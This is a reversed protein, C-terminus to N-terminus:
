ENNKSILLEILRNNFDRKIDRLASINSFDFNYLEKKEQPTIDLNSFHDKFKELAREFLLDLFKSKEVNTLEEFECILDFRTQLEQPIIEKFKDKTRINSTFVIIYGDLDYERAMSDTFKGDELLELFFSFVPYNTKEFEDCLIIGVNSKKIKESLEGHDCGIYGAPSGILSNLSDQSSYNQFNIKPLYNNKSLGNALLRAVETKGIGSTGFLFISFIKQEKIKNLSQFNLLKQKLELKFNQHGILNYNFEDFFKELAEKDLDLIKIMKIENGDESIKLSPLLTTIPEQGEFYYSFYQLLKDVQSTLSIVRINPLQNLFVEITYILNKNDELTYAISTLDLLALDSVKNFKELDSRLNGNANSFTCIPINKENAYDIIQKLNEKNHYNYITNRKLHYVPPTINPKPIVVKDTLFPETRGFLTPFIDIVEQALNEQVIIKTENTMERLNLYAYYRNDNSTKLLYILNTIDVIKNPDDRLLNLTEGFIFLNIEHKDQIKRIEVTNKYTYLVYCM